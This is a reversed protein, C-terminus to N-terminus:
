RVCRDLAEVLQQNEAHLRVAIRICHPLGFSTCDRVLIGEHLLGQVLSQVDRKCDVLIFNTSSPNPYFERGALEKVLWDREKAIYDRSAALEDVHLFAEMAYSEAFANVSWPDRATEIKEILDPSGFGYGFRIGPVSFSKTLSRLVFLHPNSIDALSENPDSLEIFAEDCFLTSGNHACRELQYLLENKPQLIGTPNNPNCVFCVDATDSSATIFAGALRASLDYEGFTPSSLFYKKKDTLMVRCFARILEVSGNGVCIEEPKKGFTQAIREKLRTYDDDPYCLLDMSDCDWSFRPPLPNVSASFDLVHKHTKEQLRKGAGGHVIRKPFEFSM